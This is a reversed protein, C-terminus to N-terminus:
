KRNAPEGLGDVGELLLQRRIGAANLREFYKQLDALQARIKINTERWAAEMDLIPPHRLVVKGQLTGSHGNILTRASKNPPKNKAM